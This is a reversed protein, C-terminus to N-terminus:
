IISQAPNLYQIPVATQIWEQWLCRTCTRYESGDPMRHSVHGFTDPCSCSSPAQGVSIGEVKPKTEWTDQVVKCGYVTALQRAIGSDVFSKPYAFQARWGRSHEIVRGWLYCEGWVDVNSSTGLNRPANEGFKADEPTKYAYIGCTCHVGKCKVETPRGLLVDYLQTVQKCEATLKEYPTWRIGNNSRLENGFMEVSWRRWGTVPEIVTLEPELPRRPSEPTAPTSFNYAMRYSVAGGILSSVKQTSSAPKFAAQARDIRDQEKKLKDELEARENEKVRLEIASSSLPLKNEAQLQKMATRQKERTEPAVTDEYAGRMKGLWKM